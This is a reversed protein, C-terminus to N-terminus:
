ARKTFRPQTNSIKDTSGGILPFLIVVSENFEHM